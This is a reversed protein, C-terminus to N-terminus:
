TEANEVRIQGVVKAASRSPALMSSQYIAMGNTQKEM